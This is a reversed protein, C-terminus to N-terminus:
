GNSSVSDTYFWSNGEANFAQSLGYSMSRDQEFFFSHGKLSPSAQNQHPAQHSINDEDESSDADDDDYETAIPEFTEELKLGKGIGFRYPLTLNGGFHLMTPPLPSPADYLGMGILEDPATTVAQRVSRLDSHGITSPVALQRAANPLLHGVFYGSPKQTECVDDLFVHQSFSAFSETADQPLGFPSKDASFEDLYAYRDSFEQTSLHELPTFADQVFPEAAFPQSLPTVAEAVEHGTFTTGLYDTSPGNSQSQMTYTASTFDPRELTTPHWSMPRVRSELGVM